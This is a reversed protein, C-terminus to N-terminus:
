VHQVLGLIILIHILASFFVAIILHLTSMGQSVPRAHLRLHISVTLVHVQVPIATIAQPIRSPRVQVAAQM